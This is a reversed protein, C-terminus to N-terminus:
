DKGGESKKVVMRDDDWSQPIENEYKINSIHSICKICFNGYLIPGGCSACTWEDRETKCRIERWVKKIDADADLMDLYIAGGRGKGIAEGDRQLREGCCDCIGEVWKHVCVM